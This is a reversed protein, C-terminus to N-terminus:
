SGTNVGVSDTEKRLYLYDFYILIIETHSCM